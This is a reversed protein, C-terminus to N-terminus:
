KGLYGAPRAARQTAPTVTAATTNFLEIRNDGGCTQTTNGPCMTQCQSYPLKIGGNFTSGCNCQNGSKLGAFKYGLESCGNLCQSVTMTNLSWANGALAMVGNGEAYCGASDTYLCFVGTSKGAFGAPHNYTDLEIQANTLNFVSLKYLDGCVESSNGFCKRTCQDRPIFSGTGLDYTKGCYCTNGYYTGFWTSNRALCAKACVDNTMTNSNFNYDSAGLLGTTPGPSSYCGKDYADAAETLTTDSTYYTAMRYTDGCIQKANGPCPQSCQSVNFLSAGMNLAGAPACTCRFGGRLEIAAFPMGAAACASTCRETTMAGDIFATRPTFTPNWDDDAFCGAYQWGTGNAPLKFDRRDAASVTRPGDIGTYAGVNLGAVPPNCSPKPGSAWIPNCGPLKPLTVKDGNGGPQALFGKDPVNCRQASGIDHYPALSPCNEMPMSFGKNVCGPDNLAKRLVATDWGAVFDGHIGAGSTDGNAWALHGNVVQGPAVDEQHWTYELLITPVRVPHSAPCAGNRVDANGPWGVPYSMHTMDDKWLNVGDWCQPFHVETKVGWPCIHDFNFNSKYITNTFDSQTQCGFLFLGTKDDTKSNPDGVLMRLGEPFPEVPQDGSTRPLFYYFRVIAPISTFTTTAPNAPDNIWYLNPMWYNSKDAKINV